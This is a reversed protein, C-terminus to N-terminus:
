QLFIVLCFSLLACSNNKERVFRNQNDYAWWFYPVAGGAEPQNSLNATTHNRSFLILPELVGKVQNLSQPKLIKCLWVFLLHPM